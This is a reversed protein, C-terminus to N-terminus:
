QLAELVKAKHWYRVKGTRVDFYYFGNTDKREIPVALRPNGWQGMRKRDEPNALRFVFFHESETMINLPISAPRQTASWTSIGKGRGEQICRGYWYGIRNNPVIPFVEDVYVTVNEREFIWQFFDDCRNRTEEFSPRYIITREDDINRAEQLSSTIVYGHPWDAPLAFQHKPDLVVIYRKGWLLAKALTTKGSGTSGVFFVRDSRKITHGAEM